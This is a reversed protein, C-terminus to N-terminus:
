NLWAGPGQTLLPDTGKWRKCDLEAGGLWLALDASWLGSDRLRASAM